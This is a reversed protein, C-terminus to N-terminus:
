SGGKFQQLQSEVKHLVANYEAEYLASQKRDITNIVTRIFSSDFVIDNVRMSKDDPNFKIHIVGLSAIDVDFETASNDELLQEYIQHSVYNLFLQYLAMSSSLTIDFLQSFDQQWRKRMTETTQLQTDNNQIM